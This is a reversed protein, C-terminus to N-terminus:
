YLIKNAMSFFCELLFTFPLIHSTSINGFYCYLSVTGFYIVFYILPDRWFFLKVFFVFLILPFMFWFYFTGLVSTAKNYNTKVGEVAINFFREPQKEFEIYSNGKKNLKSNLYNNSIKNRLEKVLSLFITKPVKKRMFYFKFERILTKSKQLFQQQNTTQNVFLNFEKDLQTSTNQFKSVCNDSIKLFLHDLNSCSIQYVFLLCLITLLKM